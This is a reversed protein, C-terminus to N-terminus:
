TFNLREFCRLETSDAESLRGLISSSMNEFTLTERALEVIDQVTVAEYRLIVEEPSAVGGLYLEGHGLRNMRASTSELAMLLSSRVQELSLQLEDESVGDNCFRELEDAILRLAEPQSDAGLATSISLLGCDTFMSAYSYLSYCLGREERVKQFLRSSMGGGLIDSMLQLTYRRPDDTALGPFALVIHNQELPKKKQICCTKYQSKKPRKVKGSPFASFLESLHDIDGDEFSGSLAVVIASGVYMSDKYAILGEGTMANLASASGLIPRGLSSSGFVNRHLREAVLDEPTDRCMDIEEFIVGRESTIDQEAFKSNLLMDALTDSFERLRTDVVRGHFCTCEKTTFANVQGGVGDILQALQSASRTHTGKFVMHEIFHAAGSLSKPEHRSGVGIWVGLSASRVYPIKEFVIRVGNALTIKEYM